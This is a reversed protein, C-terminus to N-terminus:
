IKKNNINEQELRRGKKFTIRHMIQEPNKKEKIIKSNKLIDQQEKESVTGKLGQNMFSYSIDEGIQELYGLKKNILFLLYSTDEKLDAQVKDYRKVLDFIINMIEQNQVSLEDDLSPKIKALDSIYITNDDNEEYILYWDEGLYIHSDEFDYQSSNQHTMMNDPYSLKEMNKIKKTTYNRINEGPELVIRRDDRYIPVLPELKGLCLNEISGAIIYQVKNSDTYASEKNNFYVQSSNYNVPQFHSLQYKKKDLYSIGLNSEIILTNVNLKQKFYNSLGLDDNGSGTTVVRIIERQELQRLEELEQKKTASLSKEIIKRRTKIYSEVEKKSKEIIYKGDLEFVKAIAKRLNKDNKLYSTGEINDHCYVNNNQWDWSQTLLIWEGDKLLRTVFIGGDDSNVAHAMCNHGVGGFVQCCNTYNTEGVLMSFSDDSRLLEAKITYGDIEYINSRKVLSSLKRVDNREFVEQYYNFAEQSNVGAKKVDQSLEYNGDRYDFTENELYDMAQKLTIDQIGSTNLYHKKIKDFKNQINKLNSQIKEDNLIFILNDMFFNYFEENFEKKCGDFMRHLSSCNVHGIIDNNFLLLNIYEDDYFVEKLEYEIKPKKTYNEKIFDNIRKGYNGSLKKIKQVKEESLRIGLYLSFEDPIPRSPPTLIYYPTSVESFYELLQNGSTERLIDLKSDTLRYPKNEIFQKFVEIRKDKNSDNEFIGFIEIMESFAEIMDINDTLNNDFFFVSKIKNWTNLNFQETTKLSLRSFLIPNIDYTKRMKYFLNKFKAISNEQYIAENYYLPNMYEEMFDEEDYKEKLISNVYLYLYYAPITRLQITSIDIKGWPTTLENLNDCSRFAKPEITELSKPLTINELSRCYSFAGEGIMTVGEPIIINELSKCGRFTRDEIKTISEPLTINKLSSCGSFAFEGITTISEPLTISELSSCDYFTAIGITTINEPLTINKLSSCGSFSEEGIMTINKPLTISELLKCGEFAGNGITTIGEQITFTGNIIDQDEVKKLVDNVVEM